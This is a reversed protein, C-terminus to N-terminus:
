GKSNTERRSAKLERGGGPILWRCERLGMIGRPRFIMLLVLLLSFAIFDRYTSPLFAAVMIELGGLIYGGLMAGRINGIGGAVATGPPMACFTKSAGHRAETNFVLDDERSTLDLLKSSDRAPPSIEQRPAPYEM